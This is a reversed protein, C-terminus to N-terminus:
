SDNQKEKEKNYRMMAQDTLYRTWADPGDPTFKPYKVDGLMWPLVVYFIFCLGFFMLIGAVKDGKVLRM